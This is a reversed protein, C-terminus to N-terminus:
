DRDIFEKIKRNCERITSAISNFKIGLEAEIKRYSAKDGVERVNMEGIEHYIKFVQLEYWNLINNDNLWKIIDFDDMFHESNQFVTDELHDLQSDEFIHKTDRYKKYFPSTSSFLQNRMIRAIYQSAYNNDVAKQFKEPRELLILFIEQKFDDRFNKPVRNLLSDFEKSRYYKEIETM